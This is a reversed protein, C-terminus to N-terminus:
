LILTRDQLASSSTSQAPAHVQNLAVAASYLILLLPSGCTGGTRSKSSISISISIVYSTIHLRTVRSRRKEYSMEQGCGWCIWAGLLCEPLKAAV